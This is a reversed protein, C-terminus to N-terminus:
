SAPQEFKMERLACCSGQTTQGRRAQQKLGAMVGGLNVGGPKKSGPVRPARPACAAVPPVVPLQAVSPAKADAGGSIRRMLEVGKGSSESVFGGGFTPSLRVRVVGDAGQVGHWRECGEIVEGRRYVSGVEAGSSDFTRRASQLSPGSRVIVMRGTVEFQFLGREITTADSSLPASAVGTADTAAPTATSGM